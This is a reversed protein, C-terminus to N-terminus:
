DVNAGLAESIFRFPVLTRGKIVVPSVDLRIQEDNKYAITRGIFLTIVIKNNFDAKVPITKSGRNSTIFITGGIFEKIGETKEATVYVTKTSGSTL